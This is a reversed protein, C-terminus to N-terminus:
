DQHHWNMKYNLAIRLTHNREEHIGDSKLVFQNMYGAFLRLNKMLAYELGAVFWNQDLLNMGLGKGFNLFVEDSTKIFLKGEGSAKKWVPLSLALRYRIRNLFLSETDVYEDNVLKKRELFRQELRYRHAIGLGKIKQTLVLQEFVRNEDFGYAGRQEGYPFNQLWDYGTSLILNDNAHFDVGLRLLSQQWSVGLGERRWDFLTTAGWKPSFKHSVGIMYWSHQQNAVIKQGQTTNMIALFMIAVAALRFASSIKMKM